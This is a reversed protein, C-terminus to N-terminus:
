KSLSKIEASTLHRWHSKPLDGLQLSGIAIRILRLVEIDCAALLRRIHRNKGEDLVIELWSNKLGQRLISVRKAALHERDLSLGHTLKQCLTDDAIKDIQVHYTKDLHSEPATLHNAWATDNTFLLLGESAMDLRGVPILRPLNEKASSASPNIENEPTLCSFVTTRGKEDSTTTVLGRPKNLALYIKAAAPEVSQGTVTFQDGLSVRWEPNTIRQGNVKVQGARILEFAQSRSCFGLKSLARALGTQAAAPGSPRHRYDPRM